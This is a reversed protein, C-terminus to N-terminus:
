LSPIGLFEIWENQRSKYLGSRQSFSSISWFCFILLNDDVLTLTQLCAGDRGMPVMM